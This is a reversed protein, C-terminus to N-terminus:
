RAVFVFDSGPDNTGFEDFRPEPNIRGVYNTIESLTLIKDSGGYSRLAELFKRAFPSHAGPRGDPVYEKGGSTLYKRTKFRLKREIFEAQSIEEYMDEGRSGAQAIKRDFTGGFCVDMALFIHKSPINDIVDRLVSHSLYSTKAPDNLKSETGVIYGTKFVDDFQGHGAIFIFLQDDEMYSKTAYERLKTLVDNISNNVVVEVDFGYSEELEKAITQADNVPNTLDGWETYEDTAFLLAFDRRENRAIVPAEYNITRKETIKAGAANELAIKIENPGESLILNKEILQDFNHQGEEVVKFGRDTGVPLDNIFINMEVIDPASNVGIKIQFTKETTAIGSEEPNLWALTINDNTVPAPAGVTLYVENSRGKLVEQASTMFPFLCIIGALIAIRQM